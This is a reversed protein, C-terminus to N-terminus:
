PLPPTLYRRSPLPYSSNQVPTGVSRFCLCSCVRWVCRAINVCGRPWRRRTAVATLSLVAEGISRLRMLGVQPASFGEHCLKTLLFSGDWLLGLAAYTLMSTKNRLSQINMIRMHRMGTTSCHRERRIFTSGSYSGDSVPDLVNM